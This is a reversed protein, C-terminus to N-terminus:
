KEFNVNRVSLWDVWSELFEVGNVYTMYKTKITDEIGIEGSQLERLHVMEYQDTGPKGYTTDLIITTIRVIEDRSMDLNVM